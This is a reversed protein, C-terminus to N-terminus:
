KTSARAEVEALMKRLTEKPLYEGNLVVANIRRTNGIDELPNAELLVLDALKGKEITGMSDLVGLFKAPNLTATQLAEMPTFGARILMALDDHLSFGAYIYESGVDTGAMFQVGARHMSRTVDLLLELKRQAAVSKETPWTQREVSFNKWLERELTPIYKLRPDQDLLSPDGVRRLYIPFTPVQRTRNKALGKYIAFAKEADCLELAKEILPREPSGTAIAEALAKKMEPVFTSCDQNTGTLHEVSLQGADSAEGLLVEYPVHGAIRIGAKRAEDVIAFYTERSLNWYVKVFDVGGAKIKRVMLRAEEATSVTDSNPWMAPLGDVLTGVAVFRPVTGPKEILQNRWLAVQPMADVKTWMERVSTVGNAIFLPFYYLNPARKSVNNFVHVHMDSLGPILFKGTGDIVRAEKPIRIKGTKRLAVIRNGAIVVTMDPRPPAGTMDIVTVHEFVLSQPQRNSSGRAVVLLPLLTILLLVPIKRM